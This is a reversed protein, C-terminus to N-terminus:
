KKRDKTLYDGFSKMVLAHIPAQSYKYIMWPLSPVFENISSLTYKGNAVQRFELWGTNSTKSLLGGEIHFKERVASSEDEIRRLILLPTGLGLAYFKVYDNEKKAVLFSKLYSPLWTIYRDSIEKSTLKEPNTLRQISRVSRKRISAVKKKKVYKNISIENLMKEYTDYEICGELLPENEKIVLDCTLSDILPDVLEYDSEGFIKVWLKSFSTYNVPVSIFIKEKGFHKSTQEILQRYTLEEGSIVNITKNYYEENAISKKLVRVLDKIFITQTSNNTWKPLVMGPLNLVLNKLIEFSSGGDGVIMGARLITYNIQTAKFVDEVEKRSELHKSIQKEPVVGGLYIIQKVNNRVCARAFNDAILLDVDQFTGQFLETSPMMSHVLYIAVDTNKLAENTNQFSFLDCTEWVIHDSQSVRPGRSLGRVDFSSDLEELLNRGVYGSAGAITIKM